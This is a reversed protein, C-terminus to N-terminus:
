PKPNIAYVLLISEHRMCARTSRIQACMPGRRVSDYVCAYLLVAGGDQWANITHWIFLAPLQFWRVDRGDETGRPLLGIRAAREGEFQWADRGQAMRQARSCAAQYRDTNRLTGQTVLHAQALQFLIGSRQGGLM